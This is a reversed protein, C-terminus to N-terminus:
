ALTNERGALILYSAVLLWLCTGATYKFGPAIPLPSFYGEIIAALILMAGAGLALQLAEVGHFKLSDMRTRQGPMLIGQALILGGAGSIVIATLEFSGHSIVFSFFNEATPNGAALIAGQVIGISIGNTLLVLCTGVGVLAGLSFARFAIGANNNVYFGFMRSRESTYNADATAYLTKGYTELAQDITEKGAVLEALDPRVYGVWVSALLPVLFLALALLFAKHRRRVLQPFHTTFFELLAWVSKPPSRYLCNHGQAVLDNLYQELRVGWERSQVLSLDYCISRYLTSLKSVDRSGWLRQRTTRLRSVLMEFQQWDNRRERIFRERNVGSSEM